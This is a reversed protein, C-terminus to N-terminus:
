FSLSVDLANYELTQQLLKQWIGILTEKFIDPENATVIWVCKKVFFNNIM